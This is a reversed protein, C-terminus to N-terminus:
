ALAICNGGLLNATEPDCTTIIMQREAAYARVMAAAQEKREPDLDVLPDDMVMFGAAGDLFFEAMALRLALAIGRTTGTSLYEVPLEKGDADIIQQPLAGDLEAACYRQGTAQPLYRYFAQVFPLFTDRDLQQTVRRFEQEVECLAQAEKKLHLLRAQADRLKEAVDEASDDPAERQALVIEERAQIVAEALERSRKRADDLSTFFDDVHEFQGPLEMLTDLQSRVARLESRLDALKDMVADYSGYVDQWQALQLRLREAQEHSQSVAAKIQALEMLILDPERVAHPAPLAAVADALEAFPTEALKGDITAQLRNIESALAQRESFRSKAQELTVCHLTALKQALEERLAAVETLIGAVDEQGAQVELAWGAAQIRLRGDGVFEAEKEISLEETRDLGSLVTVRLPATVNMRGVLKMAQLEAERRNIRASCTDLWAVDEAAVAATAGAKEQADRLANVLPLVQAHLERLARRGSEAKAEQLEADLSELRAADQGAQATLMTLREMARPWEANIERVKEAAAELRLAEAALTARKRIDGEVAELASLQPELQTTERLAAELAAMAADMREEAAEAARLSRKLREAQYYSALLRGVNNSYPNDIGRNNKPGDLSLDWNSLLEKREEEIAQALEDLSVGGAEFLAARLANGLSNAAERNARLQEVTKIMEEQRAFLVGEYTGKGLVLLQDLREKVAEEGTYAGGGGVTLRCARTEGWSRSLTHVNGQRCIFEVSVAITDGGGAPLFRALSGTWERSNRRINTPYFLVAFLANVLTTKGAENPGLVVNLGPKFLVKRNQTGGFTELCLERIIM